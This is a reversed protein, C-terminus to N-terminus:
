FPVNDMDRAVFYQNPKGYQLLLKIARLLVENKGKHDYDGIGALAEAVDRMVLCRHELERMGDTREELDRVRDQAEHMRKVISDFHAVSVIMYGAPIAEAEIVENVAEVETQM